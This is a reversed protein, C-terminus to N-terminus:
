EFYLNHTLCGILVMATSARGGQKALDDDGKTNVANTKTKATNYGHLYIKVISPAIVTSVSFIGDLHLFTYSPYPVAASLTELFNNIYSFLSLKQWM